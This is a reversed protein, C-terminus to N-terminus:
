QRKMYKKQPNSTQHFMCLFLMLRLDDTLTNWIRVYMEIQVNIHYQQHFFGAGSQIGSINTKGKFFVKEPMGLPAPNKKGDVMHQISYTADPWGM